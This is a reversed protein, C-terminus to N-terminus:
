CHFDPLTFILPSPSHYGGTHTNQHAHQKPSVFPLKCMRTRDEGCQRTHKMLYIRLPVPTSTSGSAAKIGLIKSKGAYIRSFIRWFIRGGEM